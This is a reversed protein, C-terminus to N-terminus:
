EELYAYYPVAVPVSCRGDKITHVGVSAQRLMLGPLGCDSGRVFHRALAAALAYVEATGAGAAVVVEAAYVGTHRVPADPGLAAASAEDKIYSRLHPTLPPVFVENGTDVHDAPINRLAAFALLHADLTQAIRYM